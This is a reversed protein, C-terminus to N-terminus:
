LRLAQLPHWLNVEGSYSLLRQEMGLEHTKLRLDCLSLARAASEAQLIRPGIVAMIFRRARAASSAPIASMAARICTACAAPLGSCPVHCIVSAPVAPM